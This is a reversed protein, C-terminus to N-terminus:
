GRAKKSGGADVRSLGWRGVVFVKSTIRRHTRGLRFTMLRPFHAITLAYRFRRFCLQGVRRGAIRGRKVSISSVRGPLCFLVAQVYLCGRGNDITVGQVPRLNGLIPYGVMCNLSVIITLGGQYSAAYRVLRLFLFSLSDEKCKVQGLQGSSAKISRLLHGYRNPFRNVHVRQRRRHAFDADSLFRGKINSVVHTETALVESRNSIAQDRTFIRRLALGGAM